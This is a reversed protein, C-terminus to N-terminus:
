VVLLIGFTTYFLNSLVKQIDDLYLGAGVVWNWDPVMKVFSIKGVPKTSGEKHWAYELFGEGDKRCIEAMKVFMRMGNSDEKGALSQGNLESDLPHLVMKPQLDSIWFYNDDAFRLDQIISKAKEQAENVSIQGTKALRAFHDVQGWASEVVHRIENRRAEM